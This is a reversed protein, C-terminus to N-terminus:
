HFIKFFNRNNSLIIYVMIEQVELRGFQTHQQTDQLSEPTHIHLYSIINKLM